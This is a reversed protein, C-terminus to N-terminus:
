FSAQVAARESFSGRAEWIPKSQTGEQWMVGCPDGWGGGGPTEILIRDGKGMYVTAKGGINIYRPETTGVDEGATDCDASRNQKIWTNRGMQACQGGEM